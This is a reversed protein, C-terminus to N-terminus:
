PFDGIPSHFIYSPDVGWGLVELPLIFYNLEPDGVLFIVIRTTVTVASPPPLDLINIYIAGKGAASHLNEYRELYTPAELGFRVEQLNRHPSM